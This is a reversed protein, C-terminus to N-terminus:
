DNRIELADLAVPLAAIPVPLSVPIAAAQSRSFTVQVPRAAANLAQITAECTEYEQGHISVVVDGPHVGAAAASGSAEVQAVVVVAKDAGVGVGAALTMGVTGEDFQATFPPVDQVIPLLGAALRRLRRPSVDTEIRGDAYKISYTFPDPCYRPKFYFCTLVNVVLKLVLVPFCTYSDPNGEEEDCCPTADGPTKGTVFAAEWNPAHSYRPDSKPVPFNFQFCEVADPIEYERELDVECLERCFQM